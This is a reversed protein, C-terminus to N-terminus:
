PIGHGKGKRQELIRKRQLLLALTRQQNTGNIKPAVTMRFSEISGVPM